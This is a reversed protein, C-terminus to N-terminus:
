AAVELLSDLEAWIADCLGPRYCAPRFDAHEKRYMKLKSPDSAASARVNALRDAVKVLLALRHSETAPDLLALCRHLEAKRTRRNPFGEPDTVLSVASAVTHGFLDAVDLVDAETDELVDHLYAVAKARYSPDVTAVIAVVAELHVSYPADGYTQGSHATIAFARPDTM